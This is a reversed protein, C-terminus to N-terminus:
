WLRWHFESLLTRPEEDALMHYIGNRFETPTFDYTSLPTVAEACREGYFACSARQLQQQQQLAPDCKYIASLRSSRHMRLENRSYDEIDQQSTTYDKIVEVIYQQAHILDATAQLILDDGGGIEDLKLAFRRAKVNMEAAEIEIKESNIRPFKLTGILYRATLEAFKQDFEAVSFGWGGTIKLASTMFGFLDDLFSDMRHPLISKLHRMKYRAILGLLDPQETVIKIKPLVELLSERIDMSLIKRQLKLANSPKTSQLETSCSVTGEDGLRKENGDNAQNANEFRTETNKHIAELTALRQGVDMMEWNKLSAREGYAQTTLLILNAYQQHSFDPKLWNNLTNWFNEHGDTLDGSYNKVEIQDRGAVTVDGCVELWLVDHKELTHCYDIAVHIQYKLAEFLKTADFDLKTNM